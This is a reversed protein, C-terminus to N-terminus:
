HEIGRQRLGARRVVRVEETLLERRLAHDTPDALNVPDGNVYSYRNATLPDRSLALEAGAPASRYTDPTLYSARAPNYTRSGLQYTGTAPDRREGRYFHDSDTSGSRCPNGASVAGVPSGHPDAAVPSLEARVRDAREVRDLRAHHM